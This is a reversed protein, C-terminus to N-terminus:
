LCAKPPSHDRRRQLLGCTPVEFPGFGTTMHHDSLTSGQLGANVQLSQGVWKLWLAGGMLGYMGWEWIGIIHLKM